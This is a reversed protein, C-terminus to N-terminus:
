FFSFLYISFSSSPVRLQSVAPRRSPGVNAMLHLVPAALLSPIDRAPGTLTLKTKKNKDTKM